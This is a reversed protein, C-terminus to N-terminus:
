CVTDDPESTCENRYAEDIARLFADRGGELATTLAENAPVPLVQGTPSIPYGLDV